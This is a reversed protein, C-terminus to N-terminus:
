NRSNQKSDIFNELDSVFKINKETLGNSLKEIIEESLQYDKYPYTKDVVQQMWWTWPRILRTLTKNFFRSSKRFNFVLLKTETSKSNSYKFLNDQDKSRFLKLTFINVIKERLFTLKVAFESYSKNEIPASKLIYKFRNLQDKNFSFLKDFPYLTNIRSLPIFYVKNFKKKYINRLNNYDLKVYDYYILENNSLCYEIKDYEESTIFFDEPNIINGEHIKQLYISRFYELPNRVTIIITINNGFFNLIKNAAMEMNRPNHDVLGEHSILVKETQIIKRLSAKEQSSVPLQNKIKNKIQTFESPNFIYGFEKCLKPFFHKQLSTTGTKGFGIHVINPAYDM